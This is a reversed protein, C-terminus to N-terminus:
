STLKCKAGFFDAAAIKGTFFELMKASKLFSLATELQLLDIGYSFLM